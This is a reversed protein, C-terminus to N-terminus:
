EFTYQMVGEFIYNSKNTRTICLHQFYYSPWQRSLSKFDGCIAYIDNSFWSANSSCVHFRLNEKCSLSKKKAPSRNSIALFVHIDNSFWSADSSCVHFRANKKVNTYM